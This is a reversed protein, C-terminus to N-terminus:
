IGCILYYNLYFNFYDKKYIKIGLRKLMNEFENVEIKRHIEEDDFKTGSYIIKRIIKWVPEVISMYLPSPFVIILKGEKKLHNKLNKLVRISDQRSFHEIVDICMIFDFKKNIRLDLLSQKYFKGKCTKSAFDICEGRIDVGVVRCGKKELLYSIIGSGCGADLVEKEAPVMSVIKDYKNKHFVHAINFKSFYAKYYYDGSQERM